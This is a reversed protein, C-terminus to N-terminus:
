RQMSLPPLYPNRLCSDSCKVYWLPLSLSHKHSKDLNVIFVPLVSSFLPSLNFIFVFACFLSHTPTHHPHITHLPPYLVHEPPLILRDRRSGLPYIRTGQFDSERTMGKTGCGFTGTFTSGLYKPGAFVCNNIRSQTVTM